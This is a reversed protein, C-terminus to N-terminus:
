RTEEVPIPKDAPQNIQVKRAASRKGATFGGLVGVLGTMVALDAGTGGVTSLLVIAVLVGLFAILERNDEM